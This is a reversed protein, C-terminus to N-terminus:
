SHLFEALLTPTPATTATDGAEEAAAVSIGNDFSMGTRSFAVQYTGLAQSNDASTWAEIPFGFAAKTTGPTWTNSIDDYLKIFVQVNSAAAQQNDVVIGFLSTAGRTVNRATQSATNGIETINTQLTPSPSVGRASTAGSIAM